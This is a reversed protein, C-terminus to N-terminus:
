TIRLIGLIRVPQEPNSIIRVWVTWDGPTLPAATGPGFLGRAIYTQNSVDWDGPAWQNENPKTGDTFAFQVVLGTPDVQEGGDWGEVIARVREVTLSPLEALVPLTRM